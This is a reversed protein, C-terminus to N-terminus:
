DLVVVTKAAMDHWGQGRAGWLPSFLNILFPIGLPLILIYFVLTRIFAAGFTPKAGSEVGVVRTGVAWMGFTRGWVSLTIAGYLLPLLVFILFLFLFAGGVGSGSSGGTTSPHTLAVITGIFSVFFFIDAVITTILTDIYYSGIRLGWMSRNRLQPQANPMPMASSTPAAM